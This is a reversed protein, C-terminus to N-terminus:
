RYNPHADSPLPDAVSAAHKRHLHEVVPGYLPWDFELGAEHRTVWRVTAPVGEMSELRIVIRQDVNLVASRTLVRCGEPTIDQLVVDGAMGTLSRCKATITVPLRETRRIAAEKM